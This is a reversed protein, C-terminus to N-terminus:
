VNGPGVRWKLQPKHTHTLTKQVDCLHKEKINFIEVQGDFFFVDM